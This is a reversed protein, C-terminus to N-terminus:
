DERKRYLSADSTVLSKILAKMSGGKDRYAKHAAQLVPADHITENRGMWFRFAHRVFVHVVGESAALKRIMDIANEVPGDLNPDGSDIIAGTTIVPKGQEHKRFIGVQNYM